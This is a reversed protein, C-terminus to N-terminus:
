RLFTLIARAASATQRAEGAAPLALPTWDRMRRRFWSMQRKAFRRTAAQADAVAGALTREGDLHAMLERVGHAAMAPAAPDLGLRKLAAVEAVAGDEVMAAFRADIQRYLAARDPWLVIRAAPALRAGHDADRQWAMLSRGTAELVELARAVRQRDGPRLRAAAEPDRWALEAHLAAAPAGQLRARVAERVAPPIAPVPALGELLAHFYLGTGGVVLPVRGRRESEAVAALAEARWQGVSYPEAASRHGYLLHPRRAEDAAAPRATLIRLERYVQQSDANIIAGGGPLLGALRLALASKGSATPGAILIASSEM